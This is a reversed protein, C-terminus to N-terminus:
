GIAVWWNDDVLQWGGITMLWDGGVLWGITVLWNSAVIIAM